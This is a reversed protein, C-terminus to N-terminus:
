HIRPIMAAGYEEPSSAMVLDEIGVGLAEALRQLTDNRPRGRVLIGRLTPASVGMERALDIMRWGKKALIMDINAHLYNVRGHARRKNTATSM